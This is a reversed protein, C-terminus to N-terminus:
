TIDLLTDTFGLSADLKIECIGMSFFDLRLNRTLHNLTGAKLFATRCFALQRM